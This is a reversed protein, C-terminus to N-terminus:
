LNAYKKGKKLNEIKPLWQHNDPSFALKIQEPDTLDFSILPRIHDIHYDKTPGPCPGLHQIIAAYDINHKDHLPIKNHKLVSHLRTRLLARIRFNENTNYKIKRDCNACLNNNKIKKINNCNHCLREPQSYCNKCISNNNIYAETQKM